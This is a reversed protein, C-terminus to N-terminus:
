ARDKTVLRAIRDIALPPSALIPIRREHEPILNV